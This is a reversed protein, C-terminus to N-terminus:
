SLARQGIIKIENDVQFLEKVAQAMVHATSHRLIETGEPSDIFIAEIRGDSVPTSLDLLKGDKRVAVIESGTVGTRKLFEDYTVNGDEVAYEKDDFWVIM